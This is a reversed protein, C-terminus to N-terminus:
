YTELEVSWAVDGIERLCSVVRMQQGDLTVLEERELGDAPLNALRVRVTVGFKDRTGGTEWEERAEEGSRACSFTDGDYVMSGPFVAELADQAKELFEGRSVALSM